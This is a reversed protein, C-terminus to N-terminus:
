FQSTLTIPALLKRKLVIFKSVNDFTKGIENPKQFQSESITPALLYKKPVKFKPQGLEGQAQFQGVDSTGAL